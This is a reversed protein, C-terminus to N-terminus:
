VSGEAKNKNGFFDTLKQYGYMKSLDVSTKKKNCEVCLTQFNFGTDDEFWDRGGRFLPVIHDCVFVEKFSDIVKNCSKCRSNDRDLIYYRFSDWSRTHSINITFWRACDINCFLRNRNGIEKGCVKCLYRGKGIRLPERNCNGNVFVIRSSGLHYKHIPIRGLNYFFWLSVEPQSM